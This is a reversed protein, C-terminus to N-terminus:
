EQNLETFETRRRREQQFIQIIKIGSIDENLTANMRALLRRIERFADRAKRRFVLSVIVFLPLLSLAVLALRVNMFLLVAVAGVFFLADRVLSVFVSVFVENIAEVDNTVRTVLRGVPAKDYYAMSLDQLHRFVDIRVDFMVRQGFVQFAITNFYQTAFRVVLVLAVFVALLAVGHVDSARLRLLTTPSVRGLDQEAVLWLNSIVLGTRGDYANAAFAYYTNSSQITQSDVVNRVAPAIRELESLAILVRNSSLRCFGDDGGLDHELEDCIAPTATHICSLRVLYRDIGIKFVYPVVLELGAACILFVTGVILLRYHPVAYKLLRRVLQADYAKGFVTEEVHDDM